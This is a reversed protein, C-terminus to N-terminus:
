NVFILCRLEGPRATATSFDPLADAQMVGDYNSPWESASAGLRAVACTAVPQPSGPARRQACFSSRLGSCHMSPFPGSSGATVHAVAALCGSPGLHTGAYWNRALAQNMRGTLLRRDRRAASRRDSGRQQAAYGKATRYAAQQPSVAAINVRRINNLLVCGRRQRRTPYKSPEPEPALRPHKPRTPM